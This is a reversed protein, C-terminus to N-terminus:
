VFQNIEFIKNQLILESTEKKCINCIQSCTFVNLGILFPSLYDKM